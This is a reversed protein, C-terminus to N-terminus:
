DGDRSPDGPLRGTRLDAATKVIVFVTAIVRGIAGFSILVFGTLLSTLFIATSRRIYGGVDPM